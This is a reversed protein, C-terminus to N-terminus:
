IYFFEFICLGFILDKKNESQLFQISQSTPQFNLITAICTRYNTNSTTSRWILSYKEKYNKSIDKWKDRSIFYRSKPVKYRKEEDSLIRSSAKSSFREEQSIGEFTSFRGDYQEIFKGEFIPIYGKKNEKIISDRHVQLIFWDVTHLM